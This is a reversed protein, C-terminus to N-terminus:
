ALGFFKGFSKLVVANQPQAPVLSVDPTPDVFAEDVILTQGYATISQLRDLPTIEATPNNPNVIVVLAEDGSPARAESVNAGSRGWVHAHETYTPSVVCVADAGLVQPLREILSQTGNAAVIEMHDPVQYYRRAAELLAQEAEADPLKSWSDQPLQPVPYPVPNIGTSLDLWDERSGGFRAIADDLRGGHLLAAMM